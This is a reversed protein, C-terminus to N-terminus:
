FEKVMVRIFSSRGLDDSCTIKVRGFPPKFFIAQNPKSEAILRDNVYWFVKSAKNDSEANLMLQAGDGAELLYESQDTPSIIRPGNNNYIRTCSTNHPPVAQYAIHETEYFNILRADLNPYRKLLSPHDGICTQCYSISSDMSVQVEITHRCEKQLTKGQIFEDVIKDACFPGPLNGSKPCVYRFDIGEPAVFWHKRSNYDVLNFVEFLLPTATEAGSLSPVGEGDFNGVWVAVTYDTNYGIAWADKRGFSTGTKWAVRPIRYTSQFYGQPIDPRNLTQLVSTTLYASERSVPQTVHHNKFGRIMNVQKMRGYSALMSYAQGLEELTVGCGGLALSLGTNKTKVSRFGDANLQRVFDPLGIEQMLLVAPINLSYSLAHKLSVAGNFTEDYNQPQYGGINIPVDYLVSNPTCIGLDFARAYLFPKLASGPSRLARIGDVQGANEGDDFDNSGCYVLVNGTKNDIVLVSGNRINKEKTRDIYNKLVEEVQLQRHYLITSHIDSSDRYQRMLRRCLHRAHVPVPYKKILVPEALADAILGADFVKNEKFYRLWYDRSKIIADSKTQINLSGPRNPIVSLVVSESLSLASAQKGFYFLSASGIGEINGGYPLLNLYMQLIEDKSYRMELQVARFMEIFKNGLSRKKPQLLRALQMTITSAGSVRKQRFINQFGARALAFPNIGYHWRFWQDEKQIITKVMLPSVKKLDTRIRWKDEKNLFASMLVGESSYVTQSFSIDSKLPFVLHLILLLLLIIGGAQLARKAMTKFRPLVMVFRFLFLILQKDKEGSNAARSM